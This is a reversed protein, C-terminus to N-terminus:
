EEQVGTTRGLRTLGFLRRPHQRWPALPESRTRECRFQQVRQRDPDRTVATSAGVIDNASALILAPRGRRGKLGVRYALKRISHAAV